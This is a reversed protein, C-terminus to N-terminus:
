RGNIQELPKFPSGDRSDLIAPIVGASRLDAAFVSSSLAAEIDTMHHVRPDALVVISSAKTIVSLPKPAPIPEARVLKEVTMWDELPLGPRFPEDKPPAPPAARSTKCYDCVGAEGSRSLHRCFGCGGSAPSCYVVGIGDFDPYKKRCQPCDMTPQEFEADVVEGTQPQIPDALAKPCTERDRSPDHLVSCFRCSLTMGGQARWVHRPMEVKVPADVLPTLYDRLLEWADFTNEAM